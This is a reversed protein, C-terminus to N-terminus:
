ISIWLRSAFDTPAIVKTFDDFSLYDGIQDSSATSAEEMTKNVVSRLKEEVEDREELRFSDVKKTEGTDVFKVAYEHDSKLEKIQKVLHGPRSEGGDEEPKVTVASIFGDDEWDTVMRLYNYLDTKCIKGDDNFDQIKFAVKLKQDRRGHYSFIALHAIFEKWSLLGQKNFEFCVLLRHKLPNISITPIDLFEDKHIKDGEGDTFELFKRRIRKIEKVTFSSIMRLEEVEEETLDSAEKDQTQGM